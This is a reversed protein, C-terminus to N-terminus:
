DQSVQVNTVTTRDKASFKWKLGGDVLDITDGPRVFNNIEHARLYLENLKQNLQAESYDLVISEYTQGKIQYRLSVLGSGLPTETM